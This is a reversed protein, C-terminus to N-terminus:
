GRFPQSTTSIVVDMAVVAKPKEVFTNFRARDSATTLGLQEYVSSIETDTLSVGVSTPGM